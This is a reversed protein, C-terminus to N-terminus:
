AKSKRLFAIGALAFLCTFGLLFWPLTNATDGTEPSDDGTAPIIGEEEFGCVSCERVKTGPTAETAESTVEWEGFTHDAKDTKGGCDCEQWHGDKDSAYDEGFDHDGGDVVVDEPALENTANADDFLKNCDNCKFHAINGDVDHSAEGEPVEELNHNDADLTGYSVGCVDCAAQESCTAEGGNHAAEGLKETCNNCERWHKDTDSKWETKPSHGDAEGNAFTATGAKGCVCSYYYTAANVCDANSAKYADAVVQQNYNHAAENLKDTCNNCENWHTTEDSKWEPKQSHGMSTGSDFTATGAKGCECSYYFKAPDNCNATGASYKADEVQQNYNHAAKDLKDTCNDCGHWHYDADSEWETKPAHGPATIPNTEVDGCTVCERAEEGDDECEPADTEEWDTWSHADPNATGLCTFVTPVPYGNTKTWVSTDLGSMNALANAGKMQDDTLVNCCAQSETKAQAYSDTCSVVTTAGGIADHLQIVSVCDSITVNSNWGTGVMACIHGNKTVNVPNGGNTLPNTTAFIESDEIARVTGYVACNNVTGTGNVYGVIGGACESEYHVGGSVTGAFPSAAADPNDKKVWGEIFYKNGVDYGVVTVTEDVLVTDFTTNAYSYGTIGGTWHGGAMFSNKIAINKITANSTVPVLGSSTSEASFPIYLGHVSYGAGDLTGSFAGLGAYGNYQQGQYQNSTFWVNADYGDAVVGTAWDIKDVENLVIDNALKYYKGMGYTGIANKLDDATKILYPDADTGSGEFPATGLQKNVNADITDLFIEQVPYGATTYFNEGLGYAAVLPNKGQLLEKSATSSQPAVTGTSPTTTYFNSATNTGKFNGTSSTGNGFPAYDAVTYTNNVSVDGAAWADGLITGRRQCNPYNLYANVVATNNVTLGSNQTYGMVGGVAPYSQGSSGLHTTISVNEIYCNDVTNMSGGNSYSFITGGYTGGHFYTNVVRLNKVTANYAHAFLARNGDYSAAADETANYLGNVTYGNGDLTGCFPGTAIWTKLASTDVASGDLKTLTAGSSTVNVKLNNVYIDATLIYKNSTDNQAVWALESATNIEFVGDSDSDVPQKTTGDWFEVAASASIGGILCCSLIVSLSIIIALLKKM